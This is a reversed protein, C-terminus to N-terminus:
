PRTRLLEWLLVAAAVAVNLSEVDRALPIGVTGGAAAATEPALGAGEAGLLLLVPLRPRWSRVDEGGAVAARAEGGAERVARVAAEAAVERHVPIRFVTGAAGRVAAPHYPDACGPTLLVADAGLAAASRIAAGVNGPDQVGELLLTVGRGPRWAPRRPEPVVALVGQPHRTPALGEMVGDAVVACRGASRAPPWAGLRGAASESLVLELIPVGWRHLDEVIRVGDVM